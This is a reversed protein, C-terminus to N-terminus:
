TSLEPRQSFLKPPDGEKINELDLSNDSENLNNSEM